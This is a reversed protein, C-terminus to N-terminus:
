FFLTMTKRAIMFHPPLLGSTVTGYVQKPNFKSSTSVPYGSKRKGKTFIAVMIRGVVIKMQTIIPSPIPSMINKLYYEEKGSNRLAQNILWNIAKM